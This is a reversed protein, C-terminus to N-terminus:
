RVRAQRYWSPLSVLMTSHMGCRRTFTIEIFAQWARILAAQGGCEEVYANYKQAYRMAGRCAERLEELAGPGPGGPYRRSDQEQEVYRFRMENMLNVHRKSGDFSHAVLSKKRM